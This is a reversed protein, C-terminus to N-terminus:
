DEKRSYKMQNLIDPCSSRLAVNGVNTQGPQGPKHRVRAVEALCIAPLAHTLPPPSSSDDTALPNDGMVRVNHALAPNGRFKAAFKKNCTKSM